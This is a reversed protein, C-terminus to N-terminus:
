QEPLFDNTFVAEVDLAGAEIIENDVLFDTFGQWVAIDQEGWQAAEGQYRPALWAASEQVLTEDLQPVAEVLVAAADEPSEIAFEYGRATAHTFARVMDPNEDIMESSTLLIPTYYNPICDAYDSLLLTSLEIDRVEAGIGQWAYFIWSYDIRDRSMLEIPDAFGVDLYNGSDWDIGECALLERIMANELSPFSFGGYTLEALDAPSELMNDAAIAAFGSTNEQIIAAISVVDAGDVIAFTSFEQFGIGFEVVGTSVAQEAAVDAPELIEVDLNMEDYYGNAQAVYFGTHNTNPSFDLMLKVSTREALAADDQAQVSVAGVVAILLACVPLSLTWRSFVASLNQLNM